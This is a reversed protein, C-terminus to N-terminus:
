GTKAGLAAVRREVAQLYLAARVGHNDGTFYALIALPAAHAQRSAMNGARDSIIPENVRASVFGQGLASEMVVSSKSGSVSVTGKRSSGAPTKRTPCLRTKSSSTNRFNLAPAVGSAM